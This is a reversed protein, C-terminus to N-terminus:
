RPLIDKVDDWKYLVTHIGLWMSKDSGELVIAVSEASTRVWVPTTKPYLANAVDVLKEIRNIMESYEKDELLTGRLKYLMESLEKTKKNTPLNNHFHTIFKM